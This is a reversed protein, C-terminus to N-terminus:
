VGRPASVESTISRKALETGLKHRLFAGSTYRRVSLYYTREVYQVADFYAELAEDDCAFREYNVISHVRQGLPGLLKDVADLITRVDQSTRVRMGAYNMYVTNSAADYSLREELHLDLMRERLGLAARGFLAPEMPKPAEVLPRFPLHSLIDRQVDVGPAVETLALGTERLEFM